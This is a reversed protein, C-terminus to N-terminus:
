SGDVKIGVCETPHVKQCHDFLEASTKFGIKCKKCANPYDDWNM